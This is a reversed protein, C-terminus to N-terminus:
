KTLSCTHVQSGQRTFTGEASDWHVTLRDSHEKLYLDYYRAEVSFFKRPEEEDEKAALTVLQEFDVGVTDSENPGLPRITFPEGLLAGQGDRVFISGNLAPGLGKNVVKVIKSLMTLYEEEFILVPHLSNERDKRAEAIEEEAKEAIRRTTLVYLLIILVLSALIVLEFGRALRTSDFIVGIPSWLLVLGVIVVALIFAGALYFERNQM